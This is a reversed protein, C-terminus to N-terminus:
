QGQGFAPRIAHYELRAREGSPLEVHHPMYPEGGLGVTFSRPDDGAVNVVHVKLGELGTLQPSLEAIAPEGTREFELELAAQLGVMIDYAARSGREAPPTQITLNLAYREIRDMVLDFSLAVDGDVYLGDGPGFFDPRIEITRTDTM